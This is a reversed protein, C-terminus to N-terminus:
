DIGKAGVGYENSSAQKGRSKWCYALYLLMTFPCVGSWARIEVSKSIITVISCGILMHKVSCLGHEPYAGPEMCSLVRNDYGANWFTLTEPDIRLGPKYNTDQHTGHMIRVTNATSSQAVLKNGNGGEDRLFMKVKSITEVTALHM